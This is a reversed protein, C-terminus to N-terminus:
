KAAAQDLQQYRQQYKDHLQQHRNNLDVKRGDIWMDSVQHTLYDFIDGSSVVVTAAKGVELSGLKQEVGAIRAANITVSQLAQEPTLGYSIAQGAGFVVNRTDWYGDLSLAFTVGAKQLLAPTRYAVNSPEDDREPIGYPATFVVPVKAAALESAVRWSDRGGVIVLQLRQTKAFLMAQRIQREDDAHVFVPRKGALVPQMAELRSDLGRDNGQARAEGYARAAAFWSELQALANQNDKALEEPTKKNWWPAILSANPWRVHLGVGDHVLADEYTWSDLQVLASQGMLLSGKPYVLSYSFGNRRITPIVESDANFAISARVDPNFATVEHTDDTARVAEIEILGLQNILAVLGPYIHKGQMSIVEANAPAALDVGIATIKGNEMLIDHGALVGNSATHLTADTLLIPKTQAAGPVIDHAWAANSLSLMLLASALASRTFRVTM